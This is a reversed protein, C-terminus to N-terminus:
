AIRSFSVSAYDVEYFGGESVTVWSLEIKSIESGALYPSLDILVNHWQHDFFPQLVVAYANTPSNFVVVRALVGSGDTRLTVNMIDYVSANFTLGPSRIASVISEDGKQKTPDVSGMVKLIGQDNTIQANLAHFQALQWPPESALGIFRVYVKQVGGRYSLDFDNTIRIGISSIIDPIPSSRLDIVMTQWSTSVHYWPLGQWTGNADIVAPSFTIPFESSTANYEIILYHYITSNVMGVSKQIEIGQHVGSFKASLEAMSGNGLFYGNNKTLGMTWRVKWGQTFNQDLWAYKSYTTSLLNDNWGVEFGLGKHPIALNLLSVYAYPFVVILLLMFGIFIVKRVAM